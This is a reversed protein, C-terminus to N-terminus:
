LLPILWQLKATDVRPSIPDADYQWLLPVWNNPVEYQYTRTLSSGPLISQASTLSATAAEGNRFLLAMSGEVLAASGHNKQVFTADYRTTGNGLDTATASTFTVTLGNSAVNAAGLRRLAVAQITLSAPVSMAAANSATLSVVYSGEVDPVFSALAAGANTIAAVSGLPASVLRWSYTLVSGGRDTSGSGDLAVPAGVASVGAAKAVAAPATVPLSATVTVSSASSDIMGDNVVLSFMYSGAMDPNFEPQAASLASLAAGSGAPRTTLMWRYTLSDGDPDSSGRGDLTVTAGVLAAQPVGANAVPPANVKVTVTAPASSAHGDNVTLTFTFPGPVDAVFSPQAASANSLSASSAVPRSTQAWNYSLSRGAPDSSASGDLKVTAGPNVTQSTGADATPAQNALASSATGGGGGCACLVAAAIIISLAKACPPLNM